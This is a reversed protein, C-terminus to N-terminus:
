MQLSKELLERLAERLQKPCETQSFPYALELGKPVKLGCGVEVEEGGIEKARRLKEKLYHFSPSLEDIVFLARDYSYDPCSLKLEELERLGHSTTRCRYDVVQFARGIPILSAFERVARSVEESITVIVNAEGTLLKVLAECPSNTELCRFEKCLERRLPDFPEIATPLEVNLDKVVMLLAGCQAHKVSVQM